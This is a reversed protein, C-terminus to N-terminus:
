FKLYKTVFSGWRNTDNTIVSLKFLLYKLSGIARYSDMETFLDINRSKPTPTPKIM